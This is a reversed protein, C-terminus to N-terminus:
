SESEGGRDASGTTRLEHGAVSPELLTDGVTRRVMTIVQLYQGTAYYPDVADNYFSPYHPNLRFARDMMEAAEKARGVIALLLAVNFLVDPDNPNLDLAKDVM